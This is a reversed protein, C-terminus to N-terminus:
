ELTVACVRPSTMKGRGLGAVHSDVVAVISRRDGVVSSHHGVEEPSHGVVQLNDEVSHTDKYKAHNYLFTM